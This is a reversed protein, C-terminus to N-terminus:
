QKVKRFLYIGLGYSHQLKLKLPAVAAQVEDAGLGGFNGIVIEREAGEEIIRPALVYQTMALEESQDTANYKLGPIDRESLYGVVGEKPLAGELDALRDAWHTLDDGSRHVAAANARWLAFSRAGSILAAIALTALLLLALGARLRSLSAM